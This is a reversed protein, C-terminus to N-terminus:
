AEASAYDNPSLLGDNTATDDPPTLMWSWVFLNLPYILYGIRTAPALLIAIVLSWGAVRCVERVDRPPRKWLYWLM